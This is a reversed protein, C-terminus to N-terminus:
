TLLLICHPCLSFYPLSHNHPTILFAIMLALEAWLFSHYLYGDLKYHLLTTFYATLHYHPALSHHFASARKVYVTM